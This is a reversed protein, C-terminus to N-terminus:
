RCVHGSIQQTTRLDFAQEVSVGNSYGPLAGPDNARPLGVLGSERFGCDGDFWLRADRAPVVAGRGVAAGGVGAVAFRFVAREHVAVVAGPGSALAYDAHLAYAWVVNATVILEEPAHATRAVDQYTITGTARVPAALANGPALAKATTHAAILGNRVGELAADVAKASFAGTRTAEPLVIARVADGWAAAPTTGFPGLPASPAAAPKTPGGKTVVLILVAALMVVAGSLVALPVSQRDPKPQRARDARAFERELARMRRAWQDNVRRDLQEREDNKM